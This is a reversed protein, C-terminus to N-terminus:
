RQVKFISDDEIISLEQVKIKEVRAHSPGDLCWEFLSLIHKLSGQAETYVSGDEGNEVFGTLNLSTAKEETSKRYFVGQVRGSILFSRRHLKNQFAPIINEIAEDSGLIYIDRKSNYEFLFSAISILIQSISSEDKVLEDNIAFAIVPKPDQFAKELFNYINGTDQNDRFEKLFIDPGLDAIDGIHLKLM